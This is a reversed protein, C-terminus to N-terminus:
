LQSISEMSFARRNPGVMGLKPTGLCGLPDRFLLFAAPLGARCGWTDWGTKSLGQPWAPHPLTRRGRGM